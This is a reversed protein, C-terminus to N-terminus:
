EPRDQRHWQGFIKKDKRTQKRSSTHSISRNIKFSQNLTTENYLLMELNWNNEKSTQLLITLKSKCIGRFPWNHMDTWPDQNRETSCNVTTLGRIKLIQNEVNTIPFPRDYVSGRIASAEWADQSEECLKILSAM